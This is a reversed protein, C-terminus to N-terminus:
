FVVGLSPFVMDGNLSRLSLCSSFFLWHFGFFFLLFLFGTLMLDMAVCSAAGFCGYVGLLFGYSCIRFLTVFCSYPDGVTLCGCGAMSTFISIGMCVGCHTPVSFDYSSVVLFFYLDSKVECWRLVRAQEEYSSGVRINYEM